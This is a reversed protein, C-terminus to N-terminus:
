LSGTAPSPGLEPLGSQVWGEVGVEGAKQRRSGGDAGGRGVPGANAAARLRPSCKCSKDMWTERHGTTPGGREKVLCSTGVRGNRGEEWQMAPPLSGHEM